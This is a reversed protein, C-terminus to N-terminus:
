LSQLFVACAVDTNQFGSRCSRLPFFSVSQLSFRVMHMLAHGLMPCGPSM